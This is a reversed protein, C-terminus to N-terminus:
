DGDLVLIWPSIRYLAAGQSAALLALAAAPDSVDFIGSVPQGALGDGRLIIIGDFYRRIEAVLDAVPRERATVLRDAWLGIQGPIVTGRQVSGAASVRVADGAQLRAPEAAAATAVDVVGERVAVADGSAIRRVEFATGIATATAQAASVSFPRAPDPAVDFVAIGDLLEVRRGESGFNVAIATQPALRVVSGDALEVRRIEATGSTFDAQLSQLLSPLAVLALCAAMAAGVCAAVWGRRGRRSPLPTVEAPRGTEVSAGADLARYARVVAKWQGPNDPDAALWDAFRARLVPDDPDDTLAVLWDAAMWAEHGDATM